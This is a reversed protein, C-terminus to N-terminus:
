KIDEIMIEVRPNTRDINAELFLEISQWCDDALIGAKVLGDNIFKIYNDLDRRTNDKFYYRITVCVRDFPEKPKPNCCMKIIQAYEKKDKQYEWKNTRGIYKNISPPVM